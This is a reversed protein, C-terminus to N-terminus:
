QYHTETNAYNTPTGINKDISQIALEIFKDINEDDEPLTIVDDYIKYCYTIIEPTLEKHALIKAAAIFIKSFVNVDIRAIQNTNIPKLNADNQFVSTSDPKAFMNNNPAGKNDILWMPDIKLLSCYNMLCDTSISRYGSEHQAYTSFPINFTNAFSRASKYGNNQRAQKLRIAIENKLM